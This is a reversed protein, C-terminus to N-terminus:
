HLTKDKDKDILNILVTDKEIDGKQKHNFKKPSIFKAHISNSTRQNIKRHEAFITHLKRYKQCITKSINTEPKLKRLYRNNSFVKKTKRSCKNKTVRSKIKFCKDYKNEKLSNKNIPKINKIDTKILKKDSSDKLNKFTDELKIDKKEESKDILNIIVTDKEINGKQKHTLKNKDHLTKEKDKDILNITVTGKGINGKGTHSSTKADRLTAKDYKMTDYISDAFIISIKNSNRLNEDKHLVSKGIVLEKDREKSTLLSDKTIHEPSRLHIDLKWPMDFHKDCRICKYLGKSSFFVNNNDDNTNKVNNTNKNNDIKEAFIRLEDMYVESDDPLQRHKGIQSYNINRNIDDVDHVDVLPRTQTTKKHIKLHVALSAHMTFKKHCIHCEFNTNNSIPKTLLPDEQSNSSSYCRYQFNLANQERTNQTANGGRLISNYLSNYLSGNDKERYKETHKTNIIGHMDHVKKHSDLETQLAFTKLCIHCGLKRHIRMHMILSNRKEFIKYCFECTYKEKSINREHNPISITNLKSQASKVYQEIKKAIVSRNLEHLKRHSDLASQMTFTKSCISCELKKHIRNHMALSSSKDFVKHCIECAYKETSINRVNNSISITNIRSAAYNSHQNYTSATDIIFAPQTRENYSNELQIDSSKTVNSNLDNNLQILFDTVSLTGHNMGKKNKETNCVVDDNARIKRKPNYLVEGNVRLNKGQNCVINDVIRIDGDPNCVIDDRVKLKKEQVCSVEDDISINIEEKCITDDEVKLNEDKNCVIGNDVRLNKEQNCGIDDIIRLNKLSKTNGNSNSLPVNVINKHVNMESQM